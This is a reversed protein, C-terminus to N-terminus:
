KSSYLHAAALEDMARIPNESAYEMRPSIQIANSFSDEMLRIIDGADGQRIHREIDRCTARLVEIDADPDLNRVRTWDDAFRVDTAKSEPAWLVVGLNIRLTELAYPSYTVVVYQLRQTM